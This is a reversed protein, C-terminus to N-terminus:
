SWKVRVTKINLATSNCVSKVNLNNYNIYTISTLFRVCTESFVGFVMDMPVCMISFSGKLFNFIKVEKADKIEFVFVPTM